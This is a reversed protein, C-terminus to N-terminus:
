GKNKLQQYINRVEEPVSDMENLQALLRARQADYTAQKMREEISYFLPFLRQFLQRAQLYYGSKHLTNIIWSKLAPCQHIQAYCARLLRKAAHRARSKVGHQRLLHYQLGVYRYPVMLRWSRSSLVAALRDESDRHRELQEAMQQELMETRRLLDEIPTGHDGSLLLSVSESPLHHIHLQLQQLGSEMAAVWFEMGTENEACTPLQERKMFLAQLKAFTLTQAPQRWAAFLWCRFPEPMNFPSLAFPRLLDLKTAPPNFLENVFISWSQFLDYPWVCDTKEGGISGYDILRVESKQNILVNWSRLDDHYLGAQELLTLQELLDGIIRAKDLSDESLLRDRLLEGELRETILWGESDSIDHGLLAPAIFGSPPASLFACERRLEAQNRQNEAELLSGDTLKFNIVKCFYNKGFYYRRSGHHAGKAETYPADRWHEIVDCHWDLFLWHHSVVYLPRYIASLHTNFRAIEHFFTCDRLLERPDEPQSPGWYLPEGRLALELIMAETCSALHALWRQTREVGHLHVIHHFVSLGIGLDYQGPELVDIVEEIRGIAFSADLHPNEAALARCVAINKEQFDVGKVTAGREALSLCFFGQACGLDLVRLPRSLKAALQDYIAGLTDIRDYCDRAAAQAWEPHGYITQYVEPLEAVLQQVNKSM